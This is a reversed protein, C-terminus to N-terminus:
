CSKCSKLMSLLLYLLIPDPYKWPAAFDGCALEIRPAFSWSNEQMEQGVQKFVIRNIRYIRDLVFAFPFKL